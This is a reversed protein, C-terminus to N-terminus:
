GDIISSTCLMRLEQPPSTASTTWRALGEEVRANRHAQSNRTRLKKTSLMQTSCQLRMWQSPKSSMESSLSIALVINDGLANPRHEKPLSVIRCGLTWTGKM